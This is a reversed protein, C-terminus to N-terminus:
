PVAPPPQPRAAVGSTESQGYAQAGPPVAFQDEQPNAANVNKGFQRPAGQDNHEPPTKAVATAAKPRPAGPLQSAKFDCYMRAGASAAVHGIRACFDNSALAPATTAASLPLLVLGVIGSAAFRRWNGMGM